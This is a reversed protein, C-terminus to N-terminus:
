ICLVNATFSNGNWYRVTTGDSYWGAPVSTSLDSNISLVTADIYNPKDIYFNSVNGLDYATCADQDDFLNGSLLILTGISAPAADPNYFVTIM